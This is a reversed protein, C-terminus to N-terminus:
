SSNQHAFGAHFAERIRRTCRGQKEHDQVDLFWGDQLVFAGTETWGSWGAVSKILLVIKLPSPIELHKM